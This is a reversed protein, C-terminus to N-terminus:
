FSLLLFRAAAKRGDPPTAEEPIGALRRGRRGLRDPWRKDALAALAFVAISITFCWLVGIM